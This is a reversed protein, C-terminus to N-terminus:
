STTSKASIRREGCSSLSATGHQPDRRAITRSRKALLSMTTLTRIFPRRMM